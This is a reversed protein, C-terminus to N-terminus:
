YSSLYISWRLFSHNAELPSLIQYQASGLRIKTHFVHDMPGFAACLDCASYYMARAAATSHADNTVKLVFVKPTPKSLLFCLPQLLFAWIVTCLQVPDSVSHSPSLICLFSMCTLHTNSNSPSPITYPSSAVTWEQSSRHVNYLFFIPGQKM